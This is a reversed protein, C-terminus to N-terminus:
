PVPWKANTLAYQTGSYRAKKTFRYNAYHARLTAGFASGSGIWTSYTGSNHTGMNITHSTLVYRQVGDLYLAFSTGNRVVAVNHWTDYTFFLVPGQAAGEIDLAISNTVLGWSHTSQVLKVQHSNASNEWMWIIPVTNTSYAFPVLFDFEVTFETNGPSLHPGGCRVEAAHMTGPMTIHSTDLSQTGFRAYTSNTVAGYDAIYTAAFPSRDTIDGDFTLHAIVDSAFPDTAPAVDNITGVGTKGGITLFLNESGEIASDVVTDVYVTFYSVGAPVTVQTELGNLTVGDSISDFSYDGPAIATGPSLAYAFVTPSTTAASLAVVFELTEGENVTDSGVALVTVPGPPPPPPPPPPPNEVSLAPSPALLPRLDAFGRRLNVMAVGLGEDLRRPHVRQNLGLFNSWAAILM